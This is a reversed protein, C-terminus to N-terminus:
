PILLQRCVYVTAAVGSQIGPSAPISQEVIEVNNLKIEAPLNEPFAKWIQDFEEQNAAEGGDQGAWKEAKLCSIGIQKKAQEFLELLGQNPPGSKGTSGSGHRKECLDSFSSICSLIKKRNQDYRYDAYKELLFVSLFNNQYTTSHHSYIRLPEFNAASMFVEQREVRRPPIVPPM